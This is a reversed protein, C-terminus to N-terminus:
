NLNRELRYHPALFYLCKCFKKYTGKREYLREHLRKKRIRNIPCCIKCSSEAITAECIDPPLEEYFGEVLNALSPALLQIIYPKGQAWEQVALM